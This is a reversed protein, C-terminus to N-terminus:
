FSAVEKWSSIIIEPDIDSVEVEVRSLADGAIGEAQVINGGLVAVVECSDDGFSLTEGGSYSTNQRLENLGHEACAHALTRARAGETFTTSMRLSDTSFFLIASAIITGIAGTMLVSILLVYGKQRRLFQRINM